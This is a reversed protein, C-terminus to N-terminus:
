YKPATFTVSAVVITALVVTTAYGAIFIVAGATAIIAFVITASAM